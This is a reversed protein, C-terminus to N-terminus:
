YLYCHPFFGRLALVDSCIKSQGVAREKLFMESQDIVFEVSGYHSVPTLLM